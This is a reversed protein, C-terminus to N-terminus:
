VWYPMLFANNIVGRITINFTQDRDPKGGPKVLQTTSVAGPLAGCQLVDARLIALDGLIVFDNGAADQVVLTTGIEATGVVLYPVSVAASVTCECAL